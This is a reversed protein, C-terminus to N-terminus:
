TSLRYLCSREPMVPRDEKAVGSKKLRRDEKAWVTLAPDPMYFAFGVPVTVSPTVFVIFRYSTRQRLRGIGQTKQKHAKHTRKTRKLRARDSEDLVLVGETIGHRELMLTVSALLLHNWAVKAECFMSSLAAIKYDGL